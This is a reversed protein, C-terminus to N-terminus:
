RGALNGFKDQVNKALRDKKYFHLDKKSVRTTGPWTEKCGITSTQDPLPLPLLFGTPM